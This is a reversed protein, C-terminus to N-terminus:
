KSVIYKFPFICPKGQSLAPSNDDYLTTKCDNEDNNIPECPTSNCQESQVQPSVKCQQGGNGALSFRKRTRTGNGCTQSCNSWDNWESWNCNKENIKFVDILPVEM